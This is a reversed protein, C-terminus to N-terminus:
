TGALAGTSMPCWKEEMAPAPGIVPGMPAAMNPQSGTVRHTSTPPMKKPPEMVEAGEKGRDPVVPLGNAFDNGGIHGFPGLLKENNEGIQSQDQHHRGKCGDHSGGEASDIFVAHHIFCLTGGLRGHGHYGQEKNGYGNDEAKGHVAAVGAHHSGGDKAYTGNDEAHGDAHIEM